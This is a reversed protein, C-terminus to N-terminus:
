LRVAEAQNVISALIISIDDAAGAALASEFLADILFTQHVAPDRVVRSIDDEAVADTLGDSCILLRLGEEIPYRALHPEVSTVGNGGLMQTLGTVAREEPLWDPREPNDAVSLALIGQRDIELISSDGVNGILIEEDTLSVAAVTSGMGQLERRDLMADRLVRDTEIIAQGLGESSTLRDASLMLREVVMRSAHDAAPHGGAGDAIVCVVGQELNGEFELVRGTAVARLHGNIGIADENRSKAPGGQTRAAVRVTLGM